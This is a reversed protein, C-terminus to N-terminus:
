LGDLSIKPHVVLREGIKSGRKFVIYVIFSSYLVVLAVARSLTVLLFSERDTSLLKGIVILFSFIVALLTFLKFAAAYLPEPKVEFNYVSSPKYKGLSMDIADQKFGDTFNNIYYRCVSNVLDNFRGKVTRKGTKTFDVKLAGTGAYLQSIADANNAWISKYVVEFKKYPSELPSSAANVKGIQTLLSQRAFLSQTVNTRDLNDMCNTRIVGKQRSYEGNPFRSFFGIKGVDAEVGTILKALNSWKGKKSTEAHFDFWEYRLSISTRLRCSDVASAFAIGLKLQDKKKDILNVCLIVCDRDSCYSDALSRFHEEAFGAGESNISVVPDYKLSCTSKWLLPISGRVQVYSTLKGSPFLLTQESEVFNACNGLADLGRRTYRCGQRLCSRRSIFLLGVKVDDIEVDPKYEIHGSMFPTIWSHAEIYVLDNVVDYNWFFRRDARKWSPIITESKLLEFKHQQQQTLTVDYGTPSYFFRHTKFVYNLSELCLTQERSKIASLSKGHLFLPVLVFKKAIRINVPPSKISVYGESEILLAAYPGAPLDYIGFIAEFHVTNTTEHTSFSTSSKDHLKIDRGWEHLNIEIYSYPSELVASTKFIHVSCKRLSM